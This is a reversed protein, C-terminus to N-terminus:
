TAEDFQRQEQRHLGRTMRFIRAACGCRDPLEPGRLAYQIRLWDVVQQHHRGERGLNIKQDKQVRMRCTLGQLTQMRAQVRTGLPDLHGPSHSPYKLINYKLEETPLASESLFPGSGRANQKGVSRLVSVILMSVLHNQHADM